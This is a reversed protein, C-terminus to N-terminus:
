LDNEEIVDAQFSEIFFLVNKQQIYNISESFKKGRSPNVMNIYNAFGTLSTM